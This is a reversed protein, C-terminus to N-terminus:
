APAVRYRTPKVAEPQIFVDLGWHLYRRKRWVPLQVRGEQRFEQHDQGARPLDEDTLSMVDRSFISFGLCRRAHLSRWASTVKSTGGKDDWGKRKNWKANYFEVRSTGLRRKIKAEKGLVLIYQDNDKKVPVPRQDLSFCFCKDKYCTCDKMCQCGYKTKGDGASGYLLVGQQPSWQM